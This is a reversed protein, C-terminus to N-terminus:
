LRQIIKSNQEVFKVSKKPNQKQIKSTSIGNKVGLKMHFWILNVTTTKVPKASWNRMEMLPLMAVIKIQLM